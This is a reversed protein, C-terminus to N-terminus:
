GVTSGVYWVRRRPHRPGSFPSELQETIFKESAKDAETVIDGIGKYDIHHIKGYYDMLIDGAERAIGEVSKITEAPEHM